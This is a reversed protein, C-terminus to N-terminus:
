ERTETNKLNVQFSKLFLVLNERECGPVLEEMFRIKAADNGQVSATEVKNERVNAFVSIVGGCSEAHAHYLGDKLLWEQRAAKKLEQDANEERPDFKSFHDVKDAVTEGSPLNNLLQVIISISQVMEEFRVLLRDFLTGDVGIAVNFEVEDYLYFSARKRLDFNVGSARLDPGTVGWAVLSDATAPAVNSTQRWFVSKAMKEEAALIKLELEGLENICTSIWNSPAEKSVGGLTLVGLNLWNGSYLIRLKEIKSAWELAEQYFAGAQLEWAVSAIFRSHSVIRSLEMFIMRIAQGKDPVVIDNGRELAQYFLSSWHFGEEADLKLLAQAAKYASLGRLRRGFGKLPEGAALRCRTLRMDVSEAVVELDGLPNFPGKLFFAERAAEDIESAEVSKNPGIQALAQLRSVGAGPDMAPANKFFTSSCSCASAVPSVQEHAALPTKLGLCEGTEPCLLWHCVADTEGVFKKGTLNKGLLYFFGFHNKLTFFAEELRSEPCEYLKAGRSKEVPSLGMKELFLDLELM